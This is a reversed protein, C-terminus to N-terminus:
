VQSLPKLQPRILQVAAKALLVMDSWMLSWFSSSANLGLGTATAIPHPYVLQLGFPSCTSSPDAQSLHISVFHISSLATTFPLNSVLPRDLQGLLFSSPGPPPCNRCLETHPSKLPILPSWPLSWTLGCLLGSALLPKSAWDQPLPM